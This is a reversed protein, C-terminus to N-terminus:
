AGEEIEKPKYVECRKRPREPDIACSAGFRDCTVCLDVVGDKKGSAFNYAGSGEKAPAEEPALAPDIKLEADVEGPEPMCSECLKVDDLTIGYVDGTCIPVSCGECIGVCPRDDVAVIEWGDALLAKVDEVTGGDVDKHTIKRAEIVM